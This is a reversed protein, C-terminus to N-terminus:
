AWISFAGVMSDMLAMRDLVQAFPYFIYLTSALFAIRKRKFLFKSVLFNLATM